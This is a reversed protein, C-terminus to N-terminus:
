IEQLNGANYCASGRNVIYQTAAKTIASLADNENSRNVNNMLDILDQRAFQEGNYTLYKTFFDILNNLPNVENVRTYYLPGRYFIPKDVFQGNQIDVDSITPLTFENTSGSSLYGNFIKFWHFGTSGYQMSASRIMYSLSGILIKSTLQEQTRYRFHSLLTCPLNPLYPRGGNVYFSHGGEDVSLGMNTYLKLNVISKGLPLPLVSMYRMKDQPYLYAPVDTDKVVYDNSLINMSTDGMQLIENQFTERTPSYILEDSDTFMVYDAAGSDRITNLMTSFLAGQDYAYSNYNYIRIPLGENKLNRLIEPTRDNSQHDIIYMESLYQLNNRVFLEIIDAENKIMSVSVIRM